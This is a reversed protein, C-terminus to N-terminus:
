SSDRRRWRILDRHLKRKMQEREQQLIVVLGAAVDDALEIAIDRNRIEAALDMLKHLRKLTRKTKHPPLFPGFERLCESLRRISVRLDHIAEEDPHKAARRAQRRLKRRLQSAHDRAFRDISDTM